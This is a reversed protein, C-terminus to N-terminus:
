KDDDGTKDEPQAFLAEFEATSQKVEGPSMLDGIRKRNTKEKLLPHFDADEPLLLPLLNKHGSFSLGFFDHCEREHWDAGPFVESITPVIPDAHPVLVRLAVRGPQEYHDFHYVVMLGDSTDLVSLDEIFFKHDRLKVAAKVIEKSSLFVSRTLGSKELGMETDAIVQIGELWATSM